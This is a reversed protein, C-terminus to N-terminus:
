VLCTVSLIRSLRKEILCKCALVILVVVIMSLLMFCVNLYLVLHHNVCVCVYM